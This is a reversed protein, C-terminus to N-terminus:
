KKAEYPTFGRRKQKQLLIEGFKIRNEEQSFERPDIIPTDGLELNNEEILRNIKAVDGLLIPKAIGEERASEAAKLIKYTDAEAFVIRKPDQKAKAAVGRM